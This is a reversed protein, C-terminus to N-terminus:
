RKSRLMSGPDLVLIFVIGVYSGIESPKLPECKRGFIKAGFKRLVAREGDVRRAVEIQILQGHEDLCRKWRRSLIALIGLATLSGRRAHGACVGQAQTLRPGKISDFDSSVEGDNREYDGNSASEDCAERRHGFGNPMSGFEVEMTARWSMYDVPRVYYRGDRSMGKLEGNRIAASACKYRPHDETKTELLILQDAPYHKRNLPKLGLDLLVADVLSWEELHVAHDYTEDDATYAVTSEEIVVLDMQETLKPKPQKRISHEDVAQKCWRPLPRLSDKALVWDLLDLSRFKELEVGPKSTHPVMVGEFENACSADRILEFAHQRYDGIREMGRTTFRHSDAPSLNCILDAADETSWLSYELWWTREEDSLWYRDLFHMLNTQLMNQEVSFSLRGEADRNPKVFWEPLEDWVALIREYWLQWRKEHRDLNEIEMQMEMLRSPLDPLTTHQRWRLYMNPWISHDPSSEDDVFTLEQCAVASLAEEYEKHPGTPLDEPNLPDGDKAVSPEIDHCLQVADVLTWVERNCWDNWDIQM